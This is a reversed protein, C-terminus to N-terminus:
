VHKRISGPDDLEPKPVNDREPAGMGAAPVLPEDVPETRVDPQAAPRAVVVDQDLAAGELAAELSELGTAVRGHACRDRGM